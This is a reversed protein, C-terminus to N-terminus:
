GCVRRTRNSHRDLDDDTPQYRLQMLYADENTDDYFERLVSVARFGRDRFFLQGPVNTERVEVMIRDRREFSLKGALKAIMESGVGRRRCNERVAFNLLHLRNKHLEYIMFGVLEDDHEAVMGIVNRSRLQGIFDDESWRFEFAGEEIALVSPMDRRIM